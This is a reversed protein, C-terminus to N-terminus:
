CFVVLISSRDLKDLVGHVVFILELYPCILKLRQQEVVLVLHLILLLIIGGLCRLESLDLVLLLQGDIGAQGAAREKYFIMTHNIYIRRRNWQFRELADVFEFLDLLLKQRYRHLKQILATPIHHEPHPPLQHILYSDAINNILGLPLM